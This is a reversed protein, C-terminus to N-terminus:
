AIEASYDTTQKRYPKRFVHTAKTFKEHTPHTTAQSASGTAVFAGSLVVLVLSIFFWLFRQGRFFIWQFRRLGFMSVIPVVIISCSLLFSCYVFCCSTEDRKHNIRINMAVVNVKDLLSIFLCFPEGFKIQKKKKKIADRTHEHFGKDMFWLILDFIKELDFSTSPRVNGQCCTM